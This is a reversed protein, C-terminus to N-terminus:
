GIQAETSIEIHFEGAETTFPLVMVPGSGLHATQLGTGYVVTPIAKQITFGQQNLITKASGYIINLIEAAGDKLEDTIEQYNEGLMNGMIKLYVKKPFCLTVSGNFSPSTIGIVGAIDFTPQAQTGKLFPKLHKVEIRCQVKFTTLAGDVFPKFFKADLQSM